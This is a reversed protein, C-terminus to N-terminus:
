PCDPLVQKNKNKRENWSLLTRQPNTSEAGGMSGVNVSTALITSAPWSLGVTEM